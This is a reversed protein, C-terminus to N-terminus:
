EDNPNEQFGLAEIVEDPLQSLDVSSAIQQRLWATVQVATAFDMKVGLSIERVLDSERPEIDVTQGVQGQPGEVHKEVVPLPTKESYFEINLKGDSTFGGHVGDPSYERYTPLKEYAVSLTNLDDDDDGAGQTNDEEDTDKPSSYPDSPEPM